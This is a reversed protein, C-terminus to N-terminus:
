HSSMKEHIISVKSVEYGPAAKEEDSRKDVRKFITIVEPGTLRLGFVRLVIEQFEAARMSNRDFAELSRAAPHAPDYQACIRVCLLM